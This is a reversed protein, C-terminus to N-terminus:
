IVYSAHYPLGLLQVFVLASTAALSSVAAHSGSSKSVGGQSEEEESMVKVIMRQGMECHGSAGSIFYFPGSYDFTFLTDGTNSFFNPHSSNCRKYDTENVKMVSDKRYKFGAVFAFVFLGFHIFRPRKKLCFVDHLLDPYAHKHTSVSLTVLKSGTNQPGNMTSTATMPRLFWGVKPAEM